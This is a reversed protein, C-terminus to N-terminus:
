FIFFHLFRILINKPAAIVNAIENGNDNKDFQPGQPGDDIQDNDEKNTLM